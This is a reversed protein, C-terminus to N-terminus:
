CIRLNQQKLLKEEKSGGGLEPADPNMQAGSRRAHIAPPESGAPIQM